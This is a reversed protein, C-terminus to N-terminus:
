NLGEDCCHEVFGAGSRGAQDTKGIADTNCSAAWDHATPTSSTPVPGPVPVAIPGYPVYEGLPRWPQGTVALEGSPATLPRRSTTRFTRPSFEACTDAATSHEPVIREDVGELMNARPFERMQEATFEARQERTRPPTDVADWSVRLFYWGGFDRHLRRLMKDSSSGGSCSTTAPRTTNAAPRTAAASQTSQGRQAAQQPRM